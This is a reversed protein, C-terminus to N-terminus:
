LRPRTMSVGAMMGIIFSILVFIVLVSFSIELM